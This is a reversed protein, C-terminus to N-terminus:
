VKQDVAGNGAGSSSMIVYWWRVPSVVCHGPEQHCYHNDEKGAMWSLNNDVEVFSQLHHSEAGQGFVRAPDHEEHFHVMQQQCDVRGDVNDNIWVLIEFEPRHKKRGESSLLTKCGETSGHSTRKATRPVPTAEVAPHISVAQVVLVAATVTVLSSRHFGGQLVAQHLACARPVKDNLISNRHFMGTINLWTHNIGNCM